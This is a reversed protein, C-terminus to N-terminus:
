NLFEEVKKQIDVKDELKFWSIEKNRKFWTMQRKAYQKLDHVMKQYM